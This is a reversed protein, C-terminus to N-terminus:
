IDYPLKIHLHTYMILQVVVVVVVVVVILQQVEL